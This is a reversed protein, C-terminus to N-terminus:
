LKEGWVATPAFGKVQTGKAETIHQAPLLSYVRRVLSRLVGTSGLSLFFLPPIM